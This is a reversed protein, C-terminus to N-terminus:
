HMSVQQHTHLDEALMVKAFEGEGIQKIIRYHEEISKDVASEVKRKPQFFTELWGELRDVFSTKSKRREPLGAALM